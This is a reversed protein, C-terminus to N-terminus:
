NTCGPVTGDCNAPHNGTVSSGNQLVVTADDNAIGGGQGGNTTNGTVSTNNLTITGKAAFIGGGDTDSSPAKATNASV